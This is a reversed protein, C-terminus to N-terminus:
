GRPRHRHRVRHRRHIRVCIREGKRVVRRKGKPCTPPEPQRGIPTASSPTVGDGGSSSPSTPLEGTGLLELSQPTAPADDSISLDSRLTGAGSPAFAIQITCSGGPPVMQGAQCGAGALQFGGTSQFTPEVLSISTIALGLDGQNEITITQPASSRGVEVTGFDLREPELAVQPSAGKGRLEVGIGPPGERGTYAQLEGYKAGLTVPAFGVTMTCSEGPKLTRCEPTELRFLREDLPQTGEPGLYWRIGWLIREIKTEGTNTLVFAHQVPPGGALQPGYDYTETEFEWAYSAGSAGPTCLIALLVVLAGVGACIRGWRM